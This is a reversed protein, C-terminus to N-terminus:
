EVLAFQICIQKMSFIGQHNKKKTEGDKSIIWVYPAYGKPCNPDRWSKLYSEPIYHQKKYQPM